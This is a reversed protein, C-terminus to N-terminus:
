GTPLRYAVVGGSPNAPASIFWFGYPVYLIGARLSIGGGMDAGPQASWLVTGDGADLAYATGKVSPQYVVGNAVTLAGFVPSPLATSWLQAGTAADLAYTTSAHAPHHFDLISAGWRNSTVYIVGDAVAATTMIGGLRNGTPLEVTWVTEGTTRDFVAYHGAKDGVGVVDREGIRFLNPAAGIDADPGAMNWFTFVDGATFQRSWAVSGDAGRLALLSDTEPSAPAEYSQGTGIFFLDREPDYAASSWVSGGAGQTTGNTVHHRWLQAGSALDLAVVSGRFTYDAKPLALETSAVGIVVKSGVVVPSSYIRTDPHADLLVTWVVTGTARDVSHLFGKSDAVVLRDGAITVTGDIAGTTLTTTWVSAGTVAHVARLSGDWGGFYVVGEATTPTGTVGDVGDVRWLEQLGGVTDPSLKSEWSAHRSNSLDLGYSGWQCGSALVVAGAAVLVRAVRQLRRSGQHSTHRMAPAYAGAASRM